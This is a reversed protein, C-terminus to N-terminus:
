LVNRGVFLENSGDFIYEQPLHTKPGSPPSPNMLQTTLAFIGAAVAGTLSLYIFFKQMQSKNTSSLQRQLRHFLFPSPSSPITQQGEISRKLDFYEILLDPNELLAREMELSQKEDLAGFYFSTLQHHDNPKM